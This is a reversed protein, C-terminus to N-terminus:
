FNYFFLNFICLKKKNIIYKRAKYISKKKKKFINLNFANKNILFFFYVKLIDM